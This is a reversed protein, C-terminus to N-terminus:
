RRRIVKAPVGAVITRPESFQGKIVAGAAAISGDALVSGGLIIVRAGLWVDRGISVPRLIIPQDRMPRDTSQGHESTIISCGHAIMTDDGIELGGECQIVCDRNITVRQGIRLNWWATIYVNSHIELGVHERGLMHNLLWRRLPFWRAGQAPLILLYLKYFLRKALTPQMVPLM